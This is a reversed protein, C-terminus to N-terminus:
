FFLSLFDSWFSKKFHMKGDKVDNAAVNPGVTVM